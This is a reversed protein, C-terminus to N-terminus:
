GKYSRSENSCLRYTKKEVHGFWRLRNELMNELELILAVGVRINANRIMDRRITGCMWCLMTM